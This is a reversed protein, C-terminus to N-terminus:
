RRKEPAVQIKKKSGRITVTRYDIRSEPHLKNWEKAREAARKRNGGDEIIMKNIDRIVRAKRDVFTSGSM